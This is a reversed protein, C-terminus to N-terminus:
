VSGVAAEQKMLSHIAQDRVKELADGEGDVLVIIHAKHPTEIPPEENELPFDMFTVTLNCGDVKGKVVDEGEMGLIKGADLDIGWDSQFDATFLYRDWKVESLLVFGTISRTTQKNKKSFLGM